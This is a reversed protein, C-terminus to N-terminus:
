IFFKAQSKFVSLPISLRIQTRFSRGTIEFYIRKKGVAQSLAMELDSTSYYGEYDSQKVENSELM